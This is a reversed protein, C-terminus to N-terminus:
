KEEMTVKLGSSLEVWGGARQRLTVHEEAVKNTEAPTLPRKVTGTGKCKGCVDELCKGERRFGGCRPCKEVVRLSSEVPPPGAMNKLYRSYGM